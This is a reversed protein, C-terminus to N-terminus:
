DSVKHRSVRLETQVDYSGDDGESAQEAMDSDDRVILEVKTRLKPKVDIRFRESRVYGFASNERAQETLELTLEHMGPAVYGEFLEARDRALASGDSDHIPLGDLKLVIRALQTDDARRFVEVELKTKFLAQSLVAARARASVLEDMVRALEDEIKRLAADGEAKGEKPPPAAPAPESQPPEDARALGSSLLLATLLTSKWM